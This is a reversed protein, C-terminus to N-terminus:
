HAPPRLRPPHPPAPHGEFRSRGGRPVGMREALGQDDSGPEAPRLALAARDLLDTRAVHDPELGAFFMPVARGTGGRHAMDRNLLREVATRDIPHLLHAVRLIGLVRLASQLSKRCM